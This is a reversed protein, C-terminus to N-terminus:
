EGDERAYLLRNPSGSGPSQVVDPTAHDIVCRRLEAPGFDPHRELCLALVGAVHPSAMSTGSLVQSGGGRRASEVDVGPAFVDVCLGYNSFTARRDNRSTAGAGVAEEVRSPSGDCADAHDNGAAVAHTVGRAISRCLAADLAPSVEGGLSMNAVAPWGHEVVHATVWDIGEIVQSDRGTGNRLVRVPHLVVEKAVGFRTGGITGAVHTGHGQDDGFGGPQSSFGEGIRGAFDEHDVDIGTDIVYVHVGKGTAGPEYVGDLPLQRQDCRDLGWPTSARTSVRPEVSKVGDQQVFAVRPDAALDRAAAEDMRAAFIGLTPFRAVETLSPAASLTALSEDGAISPVAGDALVVIYRGEEAGEIEVLGSAPRATGDAAVLTPTGQEFCSFPQLPELASCGVFLVFASSVVALAKM